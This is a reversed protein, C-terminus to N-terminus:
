PETSLAKHQRRIVQRLRQIAEITKMFQRSRPLGATGEIVRFDCM